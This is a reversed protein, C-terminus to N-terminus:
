ENWHDKIFKIIKKDKEEQTHKMHNDKFMRGCILETSARYALRMIKKITENSPNEDKWEAMQLAANRCEKYSSTTVGEEECSPYYKQYEKGLLRAKEENKM